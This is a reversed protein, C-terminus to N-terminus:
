KVNLYLELVKVSMQLNFQQYLLYIYQYIPVTECPVTWQVYLTFFNISIRLFYWASRFVLSHHLKTITISSFVGFYKRINTPIYTISGGMSLFLHCLTSITYPVHGVISNPTKVTVAYLNYSNRRKKRM